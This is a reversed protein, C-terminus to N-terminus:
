WQIFILNLIGKHPALCNSLFGKEQWDIIRYKYIVSKQKIGGGFHLIRPNAGPATGGQLELMVLQQLLKAHDSFPLKGAFFLRNM